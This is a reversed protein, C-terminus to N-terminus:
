NRKGHCEQTREPFTKDPSIEMDGDGHGKHREMKRKRMRRVGRKKRSLKQLKCLVQKGKTLTFHMENKDPNEMTKTWSENRVSDETKKALRLIKVFGSTAM